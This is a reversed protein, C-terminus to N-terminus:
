LAAKLDVKVAAKQAVTMEVTQYVKSAAKLDVKVAVKQAVM